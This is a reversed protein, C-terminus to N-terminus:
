DKRVKETVAAIEETKSFDLKEVVAEPNEKVVEAKEKVVEVVTELAVSFASAKHELEEIASSVATVTTM